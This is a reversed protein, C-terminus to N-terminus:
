RAGVKGIGELDHECAAGFMGVSGTVHWGRDYHEPCISLAIRAEVEFGAIFATILDKGSAKKWEAVPFAGSMAPGTPHLVTIIHTDDFDLVHSAIGNILAANVLSTKQTTGLVSAQPNGGLLEATERAIRTADEDAAGLTVGLYDLLCRRAERRVEPPIQDYTLQSAWEALRSTVFEPATM